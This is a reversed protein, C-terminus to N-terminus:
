TGRFVLKPAAAEDEVDLVMGSLHTAVDPSVFLSIPAEDNVEDGHAPGDVFAIHVMTGDTDSQQGYVRVGTSEPLGEANRAETLVNGARPTMELM